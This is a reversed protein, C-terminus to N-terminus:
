LNKLRLEEKRRVETEEATRILEDIELGIKNIAAVTGLRTEGWIIKELEARILHQLEEEELDFLGEVYIGPRRKNRERAEISEILQMHEPFPPGYKAEMGASEIARKVMKQLRDESAHHRREGTRPDVSLKAAPFVYQWVWETAATPHKRELAYPLISVVAARGCM